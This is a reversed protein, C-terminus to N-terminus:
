LHPNELFMLGAHQGYVRTHFSFLRFSPDTTMAFVPPTKDGPTDPIHPHTHQDEERQYDTDRVVTNYAVSPDM